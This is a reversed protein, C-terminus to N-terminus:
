YNWTAVYDFPNYDPMERSLCADLLLGYLLFLVGEDKTDDTLYRNYYSDDLQIFRNLSDNWADVDQHAAELSIGKRMAHIRFLNDGKDRVHTGNSLVALVDLGHSYHVQHVLLFPDSAFDGGLRYAFVGLFPPDITQGDDLNHRYVTSVQELKGIADKFTSPSLTSKVELVAYVDDIPVLRIDDAADVVFKPCRNPHFVIVDCQPSVDGCRNVVYGSTVAMDPPLWQALFARFARERPRGKEDPRPGAASQKFEAWLRASAASFLHKLKLSATM